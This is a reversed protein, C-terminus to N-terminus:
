RPFLNHFEDVLIMRLANVSKHRHAFGHIEGQNPVTIIQNM